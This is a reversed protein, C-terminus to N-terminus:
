ARYSARAITSKRWAACCPITLPRYPGGRLSFILVVTSAIARANAVTGKVNAAASGGAFVSAVALFASLVTFFPALSVALFDETFVPALVAAGADVVGAAFYGGIREFGLGAPRVWRRRPKGNHPGRPGVGGDAAGTEGGPPEM